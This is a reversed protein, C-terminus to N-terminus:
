RGLIREVAALMRTANFPQLLFAIRRGASAPLQEPLEAGTVLTPTASLTARETAMLSADVIVLDADMREAVGFPSEGPGAEYVHLDERQRLCQAVYSRLDPDGVAVLVNRRITRGTPVIAESPATESALLLVELQLRASAPARPVDPYQDM